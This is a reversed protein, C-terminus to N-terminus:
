STKTGNCDNTAWLNIKTTPLFQPITPSHSIQNFFQGYIPYTNAIPNPPPALNIPQM